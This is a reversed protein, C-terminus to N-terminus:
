RILTFTGKMDRRGNRFSIYYIYIGASQGQGNLTGDWDVTIGAAHYVLQGYRNYVNVTAGLLPDLFPIRWRDNNGDNNPTFATPVFIGAVVKVLVADEKTCGFSSVAYLTYLQNQLPSAIPDIRRIDNLYDPPSWYYSPNEGTVNGSLNVNEGTFIVRDAGANVNPKAHVNIVVNNSAIRCALIGASSQETVALRYLYTGAGAPYRLYTVSNAAPIDKWTKGTDISVQWQYVPSIYGSSVVSTFTYQSPNGECIDVTDNYGQIASTIIPGCPRFTIDDLAIDNGNGGPANNTMRLVIAPNNVPTTFYFGYQKWLASPTEPIDGTSFQQLVAGATTEIRFTINPKIGSRGLVNMIWAAFEYTTNPCLNSVTTVLFDGPTFSANVLMFAGNGTHDSSVTHWSNGFCRSTSNTITYFGDDPCSSSTYTYANTATYGTNNGDTGFTVNVVPDGLSGNCLQAQMYFVNGTILGTLLLRLFLPNRAVPLFPM